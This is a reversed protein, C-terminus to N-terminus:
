TAMSLAEAGYGASRIADFIRSVPMGSSPSVTVIGGKLDVDVNAAPDVGQIARTASKARGGCNMREVQVQIM